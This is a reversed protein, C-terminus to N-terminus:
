DLLIIKSSLPLLEDVNLNSRRLPSTNAASLVQRGLDGVKSLILRRRNDLIRRPDSILWGLM